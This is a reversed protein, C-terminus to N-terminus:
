YFRCKQLEGTGVDRHLRYVNGYESATENGLLINRTYNEILIEKNNIYESEMSM